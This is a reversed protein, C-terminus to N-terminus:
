ALSRTALTLEAFIEELSAKARQVERIGIGEGVLAVILRELMIDVGDSSEGFDVRVTIEGLGGTQKGVSSPGELVASDIDVRQQMLELARGEPDRLRLLVAHPHRPTRLEDLDGQAVLKGRHIVVARQCTAEVESLM